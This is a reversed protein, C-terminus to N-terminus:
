IEERGRRMGNEPNIKIKESLHEAIEQITKIDMGTIKSLKHFDPISGSNIDPLLLKILYKTEELEDQEDEFSEKSFLNEYPNLGIRKKLIEETTNLMTLNLRVDPFESVKIGESILAKALKAYGKETMSKLLIIQKEEDYFFQAFHPFESWDKLSYRFINGVSEIEFKKFDKQKDFFKADNEGQNILIQYNKHYLVPLESGSLLMMYPVPDNNIDNILDDESEIRSNLETAYFFIDDIEFSKYPNIPGYSQWCYGNFGMLNFWMLREGRKLINTIGQSYLLFTEESLVDTMEYFDQEPNSIIKSFSFRWPTSAEEELYKKEDPTLNKLASHKLYKKILGDKRFIRHAIYQAMLRREWGPEQTGTIHRYKYLKQKVEHQLHDQNAAYYILFDDLVSQAILSNQLCKKRINQYDIM